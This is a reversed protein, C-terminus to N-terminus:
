RVSQILPFRGYKPLNMLNISMLMILSLYIRFHVTVSICAKKCNVACTRGEASLWALGYAPWNM